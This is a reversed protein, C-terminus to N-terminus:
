PLYFVLTSPGFNGVQTLYNYHLATGNWIVNDREFHIDGKLHLDVTELNASASDATLTVNEYRGTVGGSAMVTDNTFVMRPARIDIPGQPIELPTEAKAASVSLTTLIALSLCVPKLFRVMFM